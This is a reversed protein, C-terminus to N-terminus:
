NNLNMPAVQVLNGDVTINAGTVSISAPTMSIVAGGMTLTVATQGEITVNAAEAKEMGAATESLALASKLTRNGDAKVVMVGGVTTNLIGAEVARTAKTAIIKAASTQETKAAGVIVSRSGKTIEICAASVKHDFGAATDLTYSGITATMCNGGVTLESTAKLTRRLDGGVMQTLNGGISSTHDGAVDDVSLSTINQSRNGSVNVTQDVGVTCKFSDIVTLSHNAGVKVSLDNGVSQTTNNGVDVSMDKSANFFMQEEGKVDSMRIENSSGDGPTTATQISSRLANAPLEYPPMTGGNYLRSVVIPEDADGELHTVGVEWGVRPLLMSGGTPLQATRMYRSSTDDKPRVRDWHFHVTTEGHQNTNIDDGSKGTTIATQLGAISVQGTTRKPYYGNKVPVAWFRISQVTRSTKTSFEVERESTHRLKVVLYEANIPEYLHGVIKIRQAPALLHDLTEAQIVERRCQCAQLTLEAVQAAREPSPRNSLAFYLENEGKDAQKREEIKLSPRHPDFASVLVNDPVMLHQQEVHQVTSAATEAGMHPRFVLEKPDRGDSKVAQDTFVLTASEEGHRCLWSVGERALLRCLFVFDSEEHQVVYHLDPAGSSLKWSQETTIKARSLVDKVIKEVSADMFIRSDVRHLLRALDPRVVLELRTAGDEDTGWGAEWVVGHFYRSEKTADDVLSFKAAKGLYSDLDDAAERSADITLSLLDLEDIEEELCHGLLPYEKGEITVTATRNSSIM